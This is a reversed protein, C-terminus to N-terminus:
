RGVEVPAAAMDRYVAALRDAVANWSLEREFHRRVRRRRADPGPDAFAPAVPGSGPRHGHLRVLADALSAPDGPAWLVGVDGTLARFPPIDTVVPTAGCAMAELVAFGSGERRSGLVLADAAQLLTEVSEHPREGLLHVRGRLDTDSEIRAAVDDRLPASGYCCWLQPDPLEPVVAALGDFVTLPDKNRDLHGVWALCPDGDIGLAGRAAAVDGPRFGTSAEPVAHVPLGPPFVGDQFFPGAQEAATFAVADYARMAKRAWPRRWPRPPRDAHDQALIPVGPLRDRLRRAHGPVTLGHVHILDPAADAVTDVLGAAPARVPRVGPTGRRLFAPREAVFRYSVNDRRIAAPRHAPQVVTVDLGKRALASALRTLAPRADLLAAPERRARDLHFSVHVVRM